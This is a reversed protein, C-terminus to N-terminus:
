GNHICRSKIISGAERMCLEFINLDMIYPHYGRRWTYIRYGLRGSEIMVPKFRFVIDSLSANVRDMVRNIYSSMRVIQVGMNKLYNIQNYLAPIYRR